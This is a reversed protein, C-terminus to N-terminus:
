FYISVMVWCFTVFGMILLPNFDRSNWKPQPHTPRKKKKKKINGKWQPKEILKARAREAGNVSSFYIFGYRRDVECRERKGVM